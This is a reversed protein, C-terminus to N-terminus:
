RSVKTLNGLYFPDLYRTIIVPTTSKSVSSKKSWKVISLFTWVHNTSSELEKIRACFQCSIHSM